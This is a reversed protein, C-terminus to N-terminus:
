QAGLNDGVGEDTPIDIDAMMSIYEIDAANKYTASNANELNKQEAPSMKLKRLFMNLGGM